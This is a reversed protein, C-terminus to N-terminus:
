ESVTSRYYIDAQSGDRWDHWVVHVRAGECCIRPTSSDGDTLGDTDLRIDDELWNAGADLSRNFFIARNAGHRDEFWVAFMHEGDCCIRPRSATVGPFLDNIRMDETLWSSGGDTSRTFHVADTGSRRDLWLVGVTAGTRCLRPSSARGTGIPNMNLRQDTARWTDGDDTSRNAFIDRALNRDDQWVVILEGGACVIQPVAAKGVDLLDHDVRVDGRLWTAGGDSSRNCYISLASSDNRADAWVVYLRGDGACCIEPHISTAAGLADSGIRTDVGRWSAGGDTSRNFYIDSGGNRSDSWVVYVNSGDCCLRASSTFGAAHSLRIDEDLWTAGQDLSRNFYVEAVANRQDHWLVYVAAGQCCMQVDESDAEGSVDTDLRRDSAEWTQGGDTSRNFYVDFAGHRMDQWATYVFEGSCCVEAFESRTVGPEDTSVQRDSLRFVPPDAYYTFAAMLRATGNDNTLVVDVPGAVGAPVRCTLETDSVVTLPQAASGGIMVVNTGPADDAFGSGILTVQIAGTPFATDPSVQLLTPEAPVGDGGSGGGGCGVSLLASLVLCVWAGRRLTELNM